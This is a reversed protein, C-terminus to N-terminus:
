VSCCPPRLHLFALSSNALRGSRAPWPNALVILYLLACNILHVALACAHWKLAISAASITSCLTTSIDSRGSRAM